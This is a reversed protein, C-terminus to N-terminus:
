ISLLPGFTSPHRCDGSWNDYGLCASQEYTAVLWPLEEALHSHLHIKRWDDGGYLVDNRVWYFSGAFIYHGDDFDQGPRGYHLTHRRKQRCAGAVPHDSLVDAVKGMDSLCASYMADCWRKSCELPRENDATVGKTHAFFTAEDSSDSAFDMLRLPMSYGDRFASNNALRIVDADGWAHKNPLNTAYIRVKGNFVHRFRALWRMNREYMPHGASYYLHYALNFVTPRKYTTM